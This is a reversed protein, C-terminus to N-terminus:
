PLRRLVSGGLLGSCGMLLLAGGVFPAQHHEYELYRTETVESRELQDIEAIVDALANADAAHFYRGGSRQAVAQLTKEDIEVVARRLVTRGDRTRVPVPAYGSTGAGIAYVRIGYEAALDAAHVPDIEGANNVGDTLLIVVKSAVQVHRLREVALALGEGIATGDEGPETAIDVDSLISLLNGHDLTLPCLGDAYRAFAVLGVLDDARGPGHDGGAVFDRFLDKVVDLRSVSTDGRVFDRAQMSGSRDVVMAIAIGERKVRTVANGTRPGALAIALLVVAAALLLAPLSALRARLSEPAGRVLGLSSYTVSSPLRAALWYVLPALLAVLLFLPDRLEWDSV